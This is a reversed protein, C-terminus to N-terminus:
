AGFSRRQGALEFIRLNEFRMEEKYNSYKKTGEMLDEKFETKVFM